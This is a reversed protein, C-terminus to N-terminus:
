AKWSMQKTNCDKMAWGLDPRKNKRIWPKGLANRRVQEEKRNNLIYCDAKTGSALHGLANEKVGGFIFLQNKCPNLNCQRVVLM